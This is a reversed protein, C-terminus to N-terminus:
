KKAFLLQKLSVPQRASTQYLQSISQAINDWNFKEAIRVRAEIGKAQTLAPNALLYELKRKLDESDKNAFIFGAQGIASLNEPIDSVLVARSRAMAELLALSLGESESPQVFLYSHQYLQALTEGTQLGTFIIRSDNGALKHLENVYGNTFSGEGVIVLKQDSDIQKFAEILYSLGKHPILRSIAVIYNDPTLGFQGLRDSDTSSYLNSGNPIFRAQRGYHEQVYRSMGETVVIIEDAFHCMLREGLKLSFKAFTGWKRHEYDRSQLTAVIRVRSNLLKPLWIVLAPGISQYHIVDFNQFSAHISALISHSIADLHKTNISPLSILDVGQHVTLMPDSYHPRTYVYVEHDLKVLRLSLDEVYREVGGGQAPIGKQGIFAIRM